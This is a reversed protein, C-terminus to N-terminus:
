FLWDLGLLRKFLNRTGLICVLYGVGRLASLESVEGTIRLAALMSLAMAVLPILNFRKWKLRDKGVVVKVLWTMVPVAIAWLDRATLGADFPNIGDALELLEGTPDVQAESAARAVSCLCLVLFVAVIVVVIWFAKM